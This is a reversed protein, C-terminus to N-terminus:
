SQGKIENTIMAFSMLHGHHQFLLLTRMQHEVVQSSQARPFAIRPCLWLSELKRMFGDMNIQKSAPPAVEKARPSVTIQGANRPGFLEPTEVWDLGGILILGVFETRHFIGTGQDTEEGHM